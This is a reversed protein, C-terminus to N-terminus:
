QYRYYLAYYYALEFMYKGSCYRENSDLSYGSNCSCSYSGESNICTHECDGNNDNCENVDSTFHCVFNYHYHISNTHKDLLVNMRM